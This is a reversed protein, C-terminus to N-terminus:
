TYFPTEQILMFRYKLCLAKSYYFTQIAKFFSFNKIACDM